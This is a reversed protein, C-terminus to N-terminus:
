TSKSYGRSNTFQREPKPQSASHHSEAGLFHLKSFHLWWILSWHWSPQPNHGPGQCFRWRGGQSTKKLVAQSIEEQPLSEWSQPPVAPAHNLNGRSQAENTRCDSISSHARTGQRIYTRVSERLWFLISAGKGGWKIIHCSYICCLVQLYNISIRDGKGERELRDRESSPRWHPWTQM